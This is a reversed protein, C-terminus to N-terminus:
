QNTASLNPTLYYSISLSLRSKASWEEKKGDILQAMFLIENSWVMEGSSVPLYDNM